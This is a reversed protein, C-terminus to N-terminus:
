FAFVCSLFFFLCFPQLRNFFHDLLLHFIWGFVAFFVWIDAGTFWGIVVIILPWEIGHMFLILKKAKGEPFYSLFRFVQLNFGTERWYDVWHDLDIFIAFLWFAVTSNWSQTFWLVPAAAVTSIVTHQSFTM